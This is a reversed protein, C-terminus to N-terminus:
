NVRTGSLSEGEWGREKLNLSYLIQSIISPSCVTGEPEQRWPQEWAWGTIHFAQECRGSSSALRMFCQREEEGKSAWPMDPKDWYSILTLNSQHFLSWMSTTVSFLEPAGTLAFYLLWLTIQPKRNKDMENIWHRGQREFLFDGLHSVYFSSICNM